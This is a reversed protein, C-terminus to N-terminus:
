DLETKGSREDTWELVPRAATLPPTPNAPPPAQAAAAPAGKLTDEADLGAGIANEEEHVKGLELVIADQKKVM